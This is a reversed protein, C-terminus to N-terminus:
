EEETDGFEQKFQEETIYVERQKNGVAESIYGRSEMQDIIKAARSYGISLRRQLYSISAFGQTM